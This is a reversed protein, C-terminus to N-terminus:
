TFRGASVDFNHQGGQADTLVLLSGSASVVQLSGAGPLDVSYGSTSQATDGAVTVMVRGVSPDEGACGAFVAVQHGDVTGVWRNTGLFVSGPAPAESDEFIGEPWAASDSDTLSNQTMRAADAGKAAVAAASAKPSSAVQELQQQRQADQAAVQQKDAADSSAAAPSDSLAARAVGAAGIVTSLVLVAVTTRRAGGFTLLKRM